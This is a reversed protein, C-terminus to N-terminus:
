FVVEDLHAPLDHLSVHTLDKGLEGKIKALVTAPLAKRLAGLTKPPAVLVLQDYAKAASFKSLVEAMSQAFLTKEYTHWDVRPEVTHHSGGVSEHSRGPKDTGYERSPAHSAAFENNMAATLATNSGTRELIRARAGDAILIWTKQPKM